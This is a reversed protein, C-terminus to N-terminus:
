ESLTVTGKVAVSGPSVTVNATGGNVLLSAANYDSVGPTDLLLTGIRAYKVSRDGGTVSFANKAIEALHATLSAEFDATVQALTRTGNLVVTATVNVSVAPAAEATTVAGAPAVGEGMGEGLGINPDIYDKVAQVIGAAAPLRDTGLIYVKVTNPGNWHPQVYADGVGAVELAWKRYAARNGSTPPTRVQAFFRARYAEDSEDDEGPVLVDTLQASALGNLYDMPLLTGTPVNGAAGATECELKFEGTAIKEIVKFNLGGASYRGELPVDILAGQANYFIGKRIAKSAPQPDVGFDAGRRRLEEGSSTQAHSLRNNRGMEAYAESLKKAAPALANYIISGERKDINSPVTSLM